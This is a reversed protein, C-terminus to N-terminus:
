QFKFITEPHKMHDVVSSLVSLTYHKCLSGGYFSIYRKNRAHFRKCKYIFVKSFAKSQCPPYFPYLIENYLREELEIHKATPFQLNSPVEMWRFSMSTLAEALDLLDADNLISKWKEINLNGIHARLFLTWDCYTRLQLPSSSLHKIAHIIFFLATFDFSPFLLKDELINQEVKYERLIDLLIQNLKQIKPSDRVNLLYAHNEIMINKFYYNSHKYGHSVMKRDAAKELLIDGKAYKGFLYIDIDGFERHSPIPYYSALDLGKFVLMDIQEKKFLGSLSTAADLIQEYKNEILRTSLDWALRLKLSPQLLAPLNQVGDYAIALVGHLTAFRYLDNWEANDMETFLGEDIQKDWLASNVLSLLRQFTIKDM